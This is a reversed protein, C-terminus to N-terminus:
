DECMLGIGWLVLFGYPIYLLFLWPSIHLASVGIGTGLMILICVIFGKAGIEALM